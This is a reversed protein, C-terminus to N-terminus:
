SINEYLLYEIFNNESIIKFSTNKSVEPTLTIYRGQYFGIYYGKIRYSYPLSDRIVKLKGHPIYFMSDTELEDFETSSSYSFLCNFVSLINKQPYCENSSKRWHFFIGNNDIILSQSLFDSYFPEQEIKKKQFEAFLKCQISWFIICFIDYIFYFPFLILGLCFSIFKQCLNNNKGNQYLCHFSELRPYEKKLQHLKSKDSVEILRVGLCSYSLYHTEMYKNYEDLVFERLKEKSPFNETSNM